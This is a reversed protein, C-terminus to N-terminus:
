ITLFPHLSQLSCSLFKEWSAVFGGVPQGPLSAFIPHLSSSAWPSLVFFPGLFLHWLPSPLPIPTILFLCVSQKIKFMFVDLINIDVLLMMLMKMLILNFYLEKLMKNFFKKKQHIKKLIHIFDMM